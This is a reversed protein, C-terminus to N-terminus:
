IEQLEQSEPVIAQWLAIANSHTNTPQVRVGVSRSKYQDAGSFL